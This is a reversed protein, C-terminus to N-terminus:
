YTSTPLSRILTLTLPLAQPLTLTVTLTLTPTLLLAGALRPLAAHGAWRAQDLDCRGRRLDPLYYTLVLVCALLYTPLYRQPSRTSIAHLDCRACRLLAHRLLAPAQGYEQLPLFITLHCSPWPPLTTLHLSITLPYPPCPASPTLHCPPILHHYYTALDHKATSKYPYTCAAVAYPQLRRDLTTGAEARPATAETSQAKRIGEQYPNPNPNPNPDPNPHRPRWM